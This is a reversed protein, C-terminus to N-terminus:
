GTSKLGVRDERRPQRAAQEASTVAISTAALM